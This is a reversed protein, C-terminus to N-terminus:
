SGITEERIERLVRRREEQSARDLILHGELHDIEHQMIRALLGEAELRIPGGHLDQAEVVVREARAVEMPHGPVSLCGEDSIEVEDSRAVIRPNIFIHREDTDPDRWVFIKKLVGIQPAALGIGNERDMVTFMLETLGVLRDDFDSVEHSEQKLVPDGFTRVADIPLQSKDM